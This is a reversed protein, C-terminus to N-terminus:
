WQGVIVHLSEESKAASTGLQVEPSQEVIAVYTKFPLSNNLAHNRLNSLSRALIGANTPWVGGPNDPPGYTAVPKGYTNIRQPYQRDRNFGFFSPANSGTVNVAPGSRDADLLPLLQELMVSSQSEAAQLPATADSALENTTFCTGNEDVLLLEKITTGLRNVVRPPKGDKSPQIELREICKRIRATIFQTPTRSYLWGNTLHQQLPAASNSPEKREWDVTRSPQEVGAMSHPDLPIVATDGAFTLGGSPALGAYYSLQTWCTAEGDRQDIHTFSRARVRVSLGDAILAYSLLAGTVLLAGAPVTLVTLNLKGWHRLLYYNVPGLFVVFLTILVQFQFVPVLGVGPILLNWFDNNNQYLSVGWRQSWQWRQPGITNFLWQWPYPGTRSGLSQDTPIAVVLGLGCPRTIFRADAPPVTDGTDQDSTIQPGITSLAQDRLKEHPLDWGRTAPDTENPQESSPNTFHALRELDSLENWRKGIDYVILNGGNHIWDYIAQWQAPHQTKLTGLKELSVLMVDIGNYDIWHTSLDDFSSFTSVVRPSNAGNASLGVSVAATDIQPDSINAPAGCLLDMSPNILFNSALKDAGSLIIVTPSASDGKSTGSRSIWGFNEPLSLQKVYEGDEYVELTFMGWSCLQPVALSVKATASGAPVEITQTVAVSVNSTYGQMTRFTVTLVRDAKVPGTLSTVTVRVPRYGSSEVWFTDITLSLGTRNVEGPQLQPLTMTGGSAAWAAQNWLLCPLLILSLVLPKIGSGGNNVTPESSHANPDISLLVGEHEQDNQPRGRRRVANLLRGFFWVAGFMVAYVLFTVALTVLGMTIGAAWAEGQTARAVIFSVVAMAATLGLIWRVTFQPIFSRRIEAM